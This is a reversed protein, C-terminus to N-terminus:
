AHRDGTRGLAGDPASVDVACLVQSTRFSTLVGPLAGGCVLCITDVGCARLISM